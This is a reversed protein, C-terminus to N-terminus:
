AESLNDIPVPEVADAPQFGFVRAYFYLEAELARKINAAQRFGHREDPFTIYAVPLGKACLAEVMREAQNPPVVKDELGQFFIVPANLQDVHHIPSRERYVEGAEPYPGVLQDLYRSEFKHTDRALIELDSIGYYSAGARFLDHFTLAALTSYGGASRGRIACREPDVRGQEILYRAAAVCDAVDVVGWGGNLAQHYGRGYGTSGRYNVDVVAFGRSTWFQIQANFATSTASTPGGHGMVILPPLEGVPGHYDPNTPPYFFAHAQGGDSTPFRMPIPQAIATEALLPESAYRLTRSTGDLSDREVIVTARDPAGARFVLRTGASRLGDIQTYPTVLPELAQGPRLRGLHWRGEECYACYVVGDDSIAYTSLGFVWHPLGFEAAMPCLPELHGNECRYLNWWSTRDSVCYLFNDPGWQPQFISEEPGGAIRRAERPLGYTDFEALWLETSDWPMAPHNWSLWALRRGDPSVSPSSYFDAGSALVVPESGDPEGAIAVLRNEPEGQDHHIECVALLRNREADWLLDAFRADILATLAVPDGGPRYRHIQQDSLNVYYVVGDAVTYAGGGYEHVRSVVSHEAPTCDERDGDAARRVVVVRGAESPRAEAWYTDAGDLVIDGLGIGGRVIADAGVASPWSGYPRVTM